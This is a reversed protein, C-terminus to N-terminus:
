SRRKLVRYRLHTAPPTDIVEVPELPIHDRSLQEFMLTGSGFLVPVLHISIEDVLGAPLSQRGVDAGGMVAVTKGDAASKAEEVAREIGGTVFVYVGDEPSDEPEAHTVVFVPLRAAGTPGDAGWWPLSSDYTRRGAVVAGTSRGSRSLLERGRDDDGFAWEHLRQGGEGMPEDPRLGSATVFGDLSMSIDFVVKSMPVEENHLDNL